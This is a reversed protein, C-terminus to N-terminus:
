RDNPDISRGAPAPAGRLLSGPDREVMAALREIRRAAARLDALLGPLERTAPLGSRVLEEGAVVLRNAAENTAGLDVGELAADIRALTTDLSLRAASVDAAVSALTGEDGDLAEGVRQLSVLTRGLESALSGELSQDLTRSAEEALSAFAASIRDTDFEELRADLTRILSRTDRMVVPLEEALGRVADELNKLTSPASPVYTTPPTFSLDLQPTESPFFDAELYKVGTIGQAAIVMRLERLSAGNRASGGESEDLLNIRRMADARLESRVEVLRHDPAILIAVVKGLTVGRIKVPSGVELGQVTEDFYTVREVVDVDFRKAGLWFLAAILLAVASVIFAGVKWENTATASM